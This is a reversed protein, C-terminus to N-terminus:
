NFFLSWYLYFSVSIKADKPRKNSFLNPSHYGIDIRGWVLEAGLRKLGLREPGLRNPGVIFIVNYVLL